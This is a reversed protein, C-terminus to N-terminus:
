CDFRLRFLVQMKGRTVFVLVIGPGGFWKVVDNWKRGAHYDRDYRNEISELETQSVKGAKKAALEELIVGHDSMSRGKGKRFKSGFLEQQKNVSDFLKMQTYARCIKADKYIGHITQLVSYIEDPNSLDCASRREIRGAPTIIRDKLFRVLM